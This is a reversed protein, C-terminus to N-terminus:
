SLRELCINIAFLPVSSFTGFSNALCRDAAARFLRRTQSEHSLAFGMDFVIHLSGADLGDVLCEFGDKLDKLFVSDFRWSSRRTFRDGLCAHVPFESLEPRFSM